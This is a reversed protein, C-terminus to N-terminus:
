LKVLGRHFTFSYGVKARDGLGVVTAEDEGAARYSVHRQVRVGEARLRTRVGGRHRASDMRIQGDTDRWRGAKGHGGRRVHIEGVM